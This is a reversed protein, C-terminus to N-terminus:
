DLQVWVVCHQQGDASGWHLTIHINRARGDSLEPGCGGSSPHWLCGLALAQWADSVARRLNAKGFGGSVGSPILVGAKGVVVAEQNLLAGACERAGLSGFTGGPPDVGYHILNNPGPLPAHCPSQWALCSGHPV